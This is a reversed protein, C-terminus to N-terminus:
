NGGNNTRGCSRVHSLQWPLSGEQSNFFALFNERVHKATYSYHNGGVRGLPQLASEDQAIMSRWEGSILNGSSDESDIFGKSVYHANNTM